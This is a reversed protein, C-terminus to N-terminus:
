QCIWALVMQRKCTVSRQLHCLDCYKWSVNKHQPKSCSKTRKWNLSKNSKEDSQQTGVKVLMQWSCERENWSKRQSQIHKQKKLFFINVVCLWHKWSIKSTVQYHVMSINEISGNKHFSDNSTETQCMLGLLIQGKRILQYPTNKCLMGTKKLTLETDIHSKRSTAIGGTVVENRWLWVPQMNMQRQSSLGKM